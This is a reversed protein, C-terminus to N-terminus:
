FPHSLPLAKNENGSVTNLGARSTWLCLDTTALRQGEASLTKDRLGHRKLALLADKM